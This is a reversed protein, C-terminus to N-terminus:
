EYADDTSPAQSAGESQLTFSVRQKAADNGLAIVERHASAWKATPEMAVLRDPAGKGVHLAVTFGSMPRPEGYLAWHLARASALDPLCRCSVLAGPLEGELAQRIEPVAHGLQAVIEQAEPCAEYVFAFLEVFVRERKKTAARALGELEADIPSPPPPAITRTPDAFAFTVRAAGSARARELVEHVRRFPVDADIALFVRTPEVFPSGELAQRRLEFLRALERGLEEADGARVGELAVEDRTLHVFPAADDLPAGGQTVLATRDGLLLATMGLGGARLLRLWEGFADAQTRCSARAAEEAADGSSLIPSDSALSPSLPPLAAQSPGCSALLLWPALRAAATARFDATWTM